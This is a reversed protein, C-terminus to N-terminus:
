KMEGKVPLIIVYGHRYSLQVMNTFTTGHPLQMVVHVKWYGDNLTIDMICFHTWACWCWCGVVWLAIVDWIVPTEITQEVTQEPACWLFCWLAADSAKTRPIWRHGTFGRAFPWYRPFYKWKIVDDHGVGSYNKPRLLVAGVSSILLVMAVKESTNWGLGVATVIIM